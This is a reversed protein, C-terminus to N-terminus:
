GELAMAAIGCVIGTVILVIPLFLNESDLGCGGIITFITAVIMFAHARANEM